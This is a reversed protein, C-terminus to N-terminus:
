NKILYQKIVKEVAKEDNNCTEAKTVKKLKSSANNMGISFGVKKLIEINDDSASVMIVDKLSAKKVKCIREIAQLRGCEEMILEVYYDDNKKSTYNLNIKEEELRTIISNIEKKSKAHIEIKYISDKHFDCFVKFDGIKRSNLKNIREKTCNCFDLTYFCINFDSFIKNIKKIISSSIHKKFLPKSKNVDYIYSGDLFIIYDVFPFDKNYDLMSKFSLDTLIGFSINNNRVKDIALMTSLPIAEESDILTDEFDSILIKFM